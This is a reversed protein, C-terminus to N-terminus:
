SWWVIYKALWIKVNLTERSKRLNCLNNLTILHQWLSSKFDGIVLSVDCFIHTFKQPGNRYLSATKGTYTNGNYLYSLRVYMFLDKYQFPDRTQAMSESPTAGNVCVTRTHYEGTSLTWLCITVAIGMPFVNISALVNWSRIRKCREM